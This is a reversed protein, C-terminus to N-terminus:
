AAEAQTSDDSDDTEEEYADAIVIPMAVERHGPGAILMIPMNSANYGIQIDQDEGLSAIFDLIIKANMGFRMNANDAVLNDEVETNGGFDTVRIKNSNINIIVEQEFLSAEEVFTKLTLTNISVKQKFELPVIRQWEPYKGNIVKCSYDITESHVSLTTSNLEAAIEFGKFLKVITQIGEKPIITEIDGDDSEETIAALRKTDTAVINFIGKKMQMLVGNLEFKPNNSDVAHLVKQMTAIKNAIAFTNGEGKAISIEQTECLTDVKVKSRGSKVVIKEPLLEFQVEDTKASKLVTLLKKGDISFPAFTSDTLDSSVYDIDKLIISQKFDSAKVQLKGDNGVVVIKGEFDGQNPMYNVATAVANRIIITNLTLTM